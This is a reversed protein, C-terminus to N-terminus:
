HLWRRRRPRIRVASGRSGPSDARAAQQLLTDAYAPGLRILTRHESLDRRVSEPTSLTPIPAEVVAGRAPWANVARLRKSLDPHDNAMAGM